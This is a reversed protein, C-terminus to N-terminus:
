RNMRNLSLPESELRYEPIKGRYIMYPFTYEGHQKTEHLNSDIGLHKMFLLRRLYLQITKHM